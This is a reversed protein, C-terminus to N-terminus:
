SAAIAPAAARRSPAHHDLSQMQPAMNENHDNYYWATKTGPTHSTTRMALSVVAALQQPTQTSCAAILRACYKCAPKQLTVQVM